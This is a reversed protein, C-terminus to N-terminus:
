RLWHHTIWQRMYADSPRLSNFMNRFSIDDMNTLQFCNQWGTFEIYGYEPKHAYSKVAIMYVYIYRYLHM